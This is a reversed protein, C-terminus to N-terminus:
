VSDYAEKFHLFLQHVINCLGEKEGTDSSNLIDSWYKNIVYLDVSVIGLLKGVYPTLRSLIIIFFFKYTTQLFTIGKYYISICKDGKKILLYLLLNNRSSHCNKRIGFPV